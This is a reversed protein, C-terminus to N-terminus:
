STYMEKLDGKALEDLARERRLYAIWLFGVSPLVAQALPLAAPLRCTDSCVQARRASPCRHTRGFQQM